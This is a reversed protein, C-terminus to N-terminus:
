VVHEAADDIRHGVHLGAVEVDGFEDFSEFVAFDGFHNEREIRVHFTLRGGAEKRLQKRLGVDRDRAQRATQRDTTVEFIGVFDRESTRQGPTARDDSMVKTANAVNTVNGAYALSRAFTARRDHFVRASRIYSFVRQPNALIGYVTGYTPRAPAQCISNKRYDVLRGLITPLCCM